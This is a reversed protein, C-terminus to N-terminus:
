FVNDLTLQRPSKYPTVYVQLTPTFFSGNPEVNAMHYKLRDCFDSLVADLEPSTVDFLKHYEKVIVGSSPDVSIINLYSKKSDPLQLNIKSM